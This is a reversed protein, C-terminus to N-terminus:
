FVIAECLKTTMLSHMSKNEYKKTIKKQIGKSNTVWYFSM